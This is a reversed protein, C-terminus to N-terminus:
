SQGVARTLLKLVALRARRGRQTIRALGLAKGKIDRPVDLLRSALLSADLRQTFGHRIYSRPIPRGNATGPLGAHKGTM